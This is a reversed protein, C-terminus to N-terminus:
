GDEKITLSRVHLYGRQRVTEIRAKRQSLTTKTSVASWSLVSTSVPAISVTIAAKVSM